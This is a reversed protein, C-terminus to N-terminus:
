MELSQINSPVDLPYHFYMAGRRRVLTEKPRMDDYDPQVTTNTSPVVIGIKLRYGLRDTM